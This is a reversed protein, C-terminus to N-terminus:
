RCASERHCQLSLTSLTPNRTHLWSPRSRLLSSVPLTDMSQLHIGSALMLFSNNEIVRGFSLWDSLEHKPVPILEVDPIASASPAARPVTPAPPATPM